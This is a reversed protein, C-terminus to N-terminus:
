GNSAVRAIIDKDKVMRYEVGDDGTVIGGAHRAIIVLDGVGVAAKEYDEFAYPSVAIVTARQEAWQKKEATDDILILGGKTKKEVEVQRVLVNHEVPEIGSPNM